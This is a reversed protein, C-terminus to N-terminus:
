CKMRMVGRNIHIRHANLCIYSHIHLYLENSLKVNKKHWDFVRLMINYHTHPIHM